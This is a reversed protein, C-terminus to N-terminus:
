TWGRPPYSQDELKCLQRVIENTDTPMEANSECFGIEKVIQELTAWGKPWEKEGPGYCSCHGLSISDFKGNGCKIVAEGSGEYSGSQYWYVIYLADSPISAISTEESGAVPYYECM